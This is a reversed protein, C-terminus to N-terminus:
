VALSASDTALNRMSAQGLAIQWLAAPNELDITRQQRQITRTQQLRTLVRCVTEVSLGLYNAIDQRSMPLDFHKASCGIALYRKSLSLLFNAVRSEAGGHAISLLLRQKSAIERSAQLWLYRQLGNSTKSIEMLTKFSFICISTTEMAVADNQYQLTEIGDLGVMDGSLYFGSVHETGEENVFSTKVSGSRITYVADFDMAMRYIHQGKQLVRVQASTGRLPEDCQREITAILCHSETPCVECRQTTADLKSTM